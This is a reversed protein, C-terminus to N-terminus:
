KSCIVDGIVNLEKKLLNTILFRESVHEKLSQGLKHAYDKDNFLHYIKKVADENSSAFLYDDNIQLPIGGVRSTIVPKGKYAGETIVLGFGEKTSKQIIVDAATQFINVLISNDNSGLFPFFLIGDEVQILEELMGVGEPDDDATNGVLVYSFDIIKRLDKVIEITDFIGKAKDLRTIQVLLPKNINVGFDKALERCALESLVRNKLSFPDIAPAIIYYDDNGWLKFEEATYIVADYCKLFKKIFKEANPHPSDLQLHVRWIWKKGLRGGYYPIAMPQPDQIMFLDYNTDFDELNREIADRYIRKQTQTLNIEDGQLANHLKKTVEFFRRGGKIVQWDAHIGLSRLLPVQSYLMEAVGGGTATSNVYCIKIDKLSKALEILEDIDCFGSYEIINKPPLYVKM